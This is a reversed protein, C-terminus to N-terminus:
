SPASKHIEPIEHKAPLGSMHAIYSLKKHSPHISSSEARGNPYNLQGFNCLNQCYTGITCEKVCTHEMIEPNTNTDIMLLCTYERGLQSM